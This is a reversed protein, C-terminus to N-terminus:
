IPGVQLWTKLSRWKGIEKGNKSNNREKKRKM